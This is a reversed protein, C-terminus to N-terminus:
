PRANLATILSAYSWTLDFAGTVYGTDKDFQESMHGNNMHFRSRAIFRDGDDVLSSVILDFLSDGSKLVQGSKLATGSLGRLNQFFALNVPTLTIKGARTFERSARYYLEAYANTALFWPNARTLPTTEYGTYHDEPYRGIATGLDHFEPIQNMKYVPIFSQQLKYATSLIRDDTVGFNDGAKTSHLAALIVAVDLGSSHDPGSKVDLTGLIYGRNGDWFEGLVQDIARAQTHYFNAAAGDGLQDALDGGANLAAKQALLTYFHRGFTEEWLDFNADQWRHAIYELDTKILTKTPMGGDYLKQRVYDTKGESILQKALKITTLARLAPGDNQPRGWDGDYATGDVNFKPEGLGSKAPGTQHRLELDVYDLLLQRNDVVNMVLAADRVWMYFYNPGVKSPSAIVTGPLTEAPAINAHLLTQADDIIKHVDAQNLKHVRVRLKEECTFAGAQFGYIASLVIGFAAAKGFRINM